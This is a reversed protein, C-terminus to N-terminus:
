ASNDGMRQEEGEYGSGGVSAGASHGSEDEAEIEDYGNYGSAEHDIGLDETVQSDNTSSKAESKNEDSPKSRGQLHSSAGSKRLGLLPTKL